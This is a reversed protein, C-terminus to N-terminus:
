VRGSGRLALGGVSEGSEIQNRISVLMVTASAGSSQISASGHSSESITTDPADISAVSSSQAEDSRSTLVRIRESNLCSRIATEAPSKRSPRSPSSRRLVPQIRASAAPSGPGHRCCDTSPRPWHSASIRQAVDHPLIHDLRQTVGVRHQDDVLGSEELLASRRAPNRPLVRSRRALDGIALDAHEGGIGRAM